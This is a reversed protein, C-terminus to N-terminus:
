ELWCKLSQEVRGGSKMKYRVNSKISKADAWTTYGIPEGSLVDKGFYIHSLSPEYFAIQEGDDGYVISRNSSLTNGFRGLLKDGFAYQECVIETTKPVLPHGIGIVTCEIDLNGTNDNWYYTGFKQESELQASLTPNGYSNKVSLTATQTKQDYTIKLTTPDLNPKRGLVITSNIKNGKLNLVRDAKGIQSSTVKCSLSQSFLPGALLPTTSFIIAIALASKM